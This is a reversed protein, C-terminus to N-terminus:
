FITYENEKCRIEQINKCSLSLSTITCYGRAFSEYLILLYKIRKKYKATIVAYFTDKIPNKRTRWKEFESQIRLHLIDGYETRIRSFAFWFLGTVGFLSVKWATYKVRRFTCFLNWFMLFEYHIQWMSSPVTRYSTSLLHWTHFVDRNNFFVIM